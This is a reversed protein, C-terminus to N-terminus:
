RRGSGSSPPIPGRSRGKLNAVPQDENPWWVTLQGDKMRVELLIAKSTLERQFWYAGPQTPPENSWQIDAAVPSPKNVKATSHM